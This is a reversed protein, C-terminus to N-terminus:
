QLTIITNAIYKLQSKDFLTLHLTHKLIHLTQNGKKM